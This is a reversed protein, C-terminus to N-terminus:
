RETTGFENYIVIKNDQKDLIKTKKYLYQYGQNTEEDYHYLDRHWHGCWWERFQISKHIDDNLLAVEDRFKASYLSTGDDFLRQNIHQPGTHSLVYDFCSETELLSFVNQKEEPSWYEREWWSENPKRRHKDISLAGGLVLMKIGDITYIKGRKLYAVFPKDKIQYVTEGIGIDVEPIDDMGLIPEHNGMVCLVPFHRYALMKYNFLDTKHNGPWLFGGDGLIIHYKISEYKEQQYKQILAEKIIYLLENIANAHFDGSILISM